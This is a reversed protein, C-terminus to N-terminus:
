DDHVFAIIILCHVTRLLGFASLRSLLIQLSITLMINFNIGNEKVVTDSSVRSKLIHVESTEKVIIQFDHVDIEDKSVSYLNICSNYHIIICNISIHLSVKYFGELLFLTLKLKRYWCINSAMLCSSSSGLHCLSSISMVSCYEDTVHYWSSFLVRSYESM